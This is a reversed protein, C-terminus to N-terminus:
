WGGAPGDGQVRNVLLAWEAEAEERTCAVEAMTDRVFKERGEELEPSPAPVDSDPLRVGAPPAEDVKIVGERRQADKRRGREGFYLGLVIGAFFLALVVFGVLVALVWVSVTM